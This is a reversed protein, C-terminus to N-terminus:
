GAAASSARPSPTAKTKRAGSSSPRATALDIGEEAIGGRLQGLAKPVDVSQARAGGALSAIALLALGFRRLM